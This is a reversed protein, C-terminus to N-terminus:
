KITKENQFQFIYKYEIKSKNEINIPIITVSSLVCAFLNAKQPNEKKKM